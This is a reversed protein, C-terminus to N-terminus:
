SWTVVEDILGLLKAQEASIFREHETLAKFVEIFRAETLVERGSFGLDLMRIQPDDFNISRRGAPLGNDGFIFRAMRAAHLSDARDLLEALITAAQRTIESNPPPTVRADHYLLRCGDFARRHGIDGMSLVFAAASAVSTLGLTAIRAGRSRWQDMRGLLYDLAPTEGGPSDIEFEFAHEWYYTLRKEVQDCASLVEAVTFPNILRVRPTPITRESETRVGNLSVSARGVKGDAFMYYCTGPSLSALPHVELVHLDGAVPSRPLFKQIKDQTDSDTNRFILKNGTNGLIIGLIAELNGSANTASATLGNRLSAISQTALACVVRYARCRDLFSQEGSEPDATVFRHFEDCVYFVPRRKNKRSFSAEFFKTKLTRGILDNVPANSDPRFILIKGSEISGRVSLNAHGRTKPLPPPRLDIFANLWENALDRLFLEVYAMTGAKQNDPLGPAGLLVSVSRRPVGLRMALQALEALGHYNDESMAASLLQYANDFYNKQERDPGIGIQAWTDRQEDSGIEFAVDWLPRERSTRLVDAAIFAEVIAFGSNRWFAEREALAGVYAASCNTLMYELITKTARDHHRGEFLWIRRPSITPDILVADADETDRLYQTLEFKPDIVLMAPASDPYALGYQIAAHVIPMIGSKTKGSGTEGLILFHRSMTRPSLRGAGLAHWAAIEFPRAEDEDTWELPSRPDVEPEATPHPEPPM